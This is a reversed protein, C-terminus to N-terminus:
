PVIQPRFFQYGGSPITYTYTAEGNTFDAYSPTIAGDLTSWDDSIAAKGQLQIKGNITGNKAGNDTTLSVTIQLVTPSTMEIKSIGFTYAVSSATGESLAVEGLLYAESLQDQTMTGLSTIDSRGALWVNLHTQQEDTPPNSGAAPLDPISTTPGTLAYAPDGHSIYLNDILGTGSFSAGELTNGTTNMLDLDTFGSVVEDNLLVDFKGNLLKITLQYWKNTDLSVTNTTWGNAHVAVLKADSSVFLALKAGSLLSIDPSDSMADFHVRMDVYVPKSGYSVAGESGPYAVTNTLVTGETDLQLVQSNAGFWVNSRAPLGSSAMSLFGTTVVSAGTRGAWSPLATNFSELYAGDTMPAVNWSSPVVSDAGQVLTAVPAVALLVGAKALRKLTIM